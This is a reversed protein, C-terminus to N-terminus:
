LLVDVQLRKIKEEKRKERKNSNRVSFKNILKRKESLQFHLRDCEEKTKIYKHELVKYINKDKSVEVKLDVNQSMLESYSNSLDLLRADLDQIIANSCQLVEDDHHSDYDTNNLDESLEFIVFKESLFELKENYKKQLNLKDIRSNFRSFMSEVTGVKPSSDLRFYNGLFTCINVWTLSSISRKARCLSIFVKNTLIVDSCVLEGSELKKQDFMYLDPWKRENKLFEKKMEQEANLNQKEIRKIFRSFRTCLNSIKEEEISIGLNGLMASVARNRNSSHDAAINLIIQFAKYSISPYM